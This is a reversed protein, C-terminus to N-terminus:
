SKFKLPSSVCQLFPGQGSRDQFESCHLTSLPSPCGEGETNLIPSPGLLATGSCVELCRGWAPDCSLPARGLQPEGEGSGPRPCCSQPELCLRVAERGGPRCSVLRHKRPCTRRLAPFPGGAPSACSGPRGWGPRPRLCRSHAGGRGLGLHSVRLAGLSGPLPHPASDLAQVSESKM